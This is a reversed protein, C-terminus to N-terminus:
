KGLPSVKLVWGYCFIDINRIKSLESEFYPMVGECIVLGTVENKTNKKLWHIYRRIQDIASRGIKGVKLEVVLYNGNNDKYLLDIRGVPTDIQRGELKLNKAIIGPNSKIYAEIDKEIVESVEDTSLAYTLCLDTRENKNIADLLTNVDDNTLNRWNRTASGISQTDTRIISFPINLSLRQALARNFLLPKELIKSLIPDGFLVVNDRKDKTKGSLYEIIHPNRYKALLNKDQIIDQVSIVRDVVYYATIYKKGMYTHHFFVYDGRNLCTKLKRARSGADGYTYEKFLPDEHGLINIYPVLLNM